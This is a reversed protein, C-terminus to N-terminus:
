KGDVRELELFEISGLYYSGDFWVLNYERNLRLESVVWDFTEWIIGATFILDDNKVKKFPDDEFLLSVYSTNVISHVHYISGNDNTKIKWLDENAIKIKAIFDAKHPM